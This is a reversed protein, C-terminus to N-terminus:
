SPSSVRRVCFTCLACRDGQKCWLTPSADRTTIASQGLRACTHRRPHRSVSDDRTSCTSHTLDRQSTYRSPRRGGCADPAPALSALYSRLSLRTRGDATAPPDPVRRLSATHQTSRARAGTNGGRDDRRTFLTPRSSAFEHLRTLGYLCRALM